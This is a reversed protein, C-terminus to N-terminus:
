FLEDEETGYYLGHRSREDPPLMDHVTNFIVERREETLERNYGVAVQLYEVSVYKIGPEKWDFEQDAKQRIIERELSEALTISDLEMEGFKFIEYIFGAGCDRCKINVPGTLFCRACTGYTQHNAMSKKLWNEEMDRDTTYCHNLPRVVDEDKIYEEMYTFPHYDRIIYRRPPPREFNFTYQKKESM